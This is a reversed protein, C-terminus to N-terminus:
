FPKVAESFEGDKAWCYDKVPCYGCMFGTQAPYYGADIALQSTSYHHKVLDEDHRLDYNGVLMGDRAMFYSGTVPRPWLNSTGWAYTSLQLKGTPTTRGAKIDVVRLTKDPEEFIRDIYGIVRPKTDQGNPYYEFGVEIAPTGDPTIWINGPYRNRWNVYNDVFSQGHFLWWDKNEKLPWTKTPKGSVRFAVEDLGTRDRQEEIEEEFCALFSTENSAVGFTEWDRRETAKHVASGGILAWGPTEPVKVIRTLRFKEGCEALTSAGSYSLHDVM